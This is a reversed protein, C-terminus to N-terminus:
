NDIEIQLQPNYSPLSGDEDVTIRVMTEKAEPLKVSFSQESVYGAEAADRSKVEIRVSIVHSGPAVPRVALTIPEETVPRLSADWLRTGDLRLEAKEIRYHRNAEWRLEFKVKTSFLAKEITERRARSRFVADRLEDYRARLEQPSTATAAKEKASASAPPTSVDVNIVPGAPALAAAPDATTTLAAAAPAPPESQEPEDDDLIPASSEAAPPPAAKRKKAAARGSKTAPKAAYRKPTAVAAASASCLFAVCLAGALWTRTTLHHKMIMAAM